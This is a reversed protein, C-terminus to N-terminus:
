GIGSCGVLWLARGVWLVADRMGQEQQGVVGMLILGNLDM